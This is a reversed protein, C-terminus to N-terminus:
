SWRVGKLEVGLLAVPFVVVVADSGPGPGRGGRCCLSAARERERERERECHAGAERPHERDLAHPDRGRRLARRRESLSARRRRVRVRLRTRRVSTGMRGRRRPSRRDKLVKRGPPRREGGLTGRRREVGSRVGKLSRGSMM